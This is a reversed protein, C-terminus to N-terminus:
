EKNLEQIADDVSFYEADISDMEFTDSLTGKIESNTLQFMPRIDSKIDPIQVMPVRTITVTGYFQRQDMKSLAMANAKLWFHVLGYVLLIIGIQLAQHGRESLKLRGDLMFLAVLLPFTLYLQWWKPRAYNTSV